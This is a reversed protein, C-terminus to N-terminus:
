LFFVFITTFLSFPPSYPSPFQPFFSLSLFIFAILSIGREVGGDKMKEKKQSLSVKASLFELVCFTRFIASM